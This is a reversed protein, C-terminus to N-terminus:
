HEKVSKSYILIDDIYVTVFIDLCDQLIDNIYSQFSSSAECLSFPMVLYEFLRYCTRMATKWKEGEAMRLKNFTAIIDLKTFIVSFTMLNLTEQILPLPYHNKVTLNNLDCYNVCLWLGGEPKKIFIVPSAAPSSSAWIFSKFLHEKLYKQLVLLEDRSMNYLPSKPSEKDPLLPITHDYLWHSPLKNFEEWFFLIAFEHHERPLKALVDVAEWLALAKEIDKISTVFLEHNRRRALRIIPAANVICINLFPELDSHELITRLICLVVTKTFM